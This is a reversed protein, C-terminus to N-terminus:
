EKELEATTKPAVKRKKSAAKEVVKRAPEKRKKGKSQTEQEQEEEKEDEERNAKNTVRGRKVRKPLSEWGGLVSM